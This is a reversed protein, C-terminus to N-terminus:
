HNIKEIKDATVEMITRTNGAEDAFRSWHLLGFVNVRDGKSLAPADKATVSFWTVRLEPFKGSKDKGLTETAVSLRTITDGEIVKTDVMGVIAGLLEVKNITEM